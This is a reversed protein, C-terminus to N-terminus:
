SLLHGKGENQVVNDVVLEFCHGLRPRELLWDVLLQDLVVVLDNLFWHVQICNCLFHFTLLM